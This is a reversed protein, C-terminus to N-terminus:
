GGLGPCLRGKSTNYGCAITNDEVQWWMECRGAKLRPFGDLFPYRRKFPMTVALGRFIFPEAGQVTVWSEGARWRPLEFSQM